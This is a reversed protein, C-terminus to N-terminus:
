CYWRLWFNRYLRDRVHETTRNWFRCSLWQLIIIFWVSPCSDISLSLFLMAFESFLAWYFLEEPKEILFRWTSSQPVSSIAFNNWMLMNKVLFFYQLYIFILKVQLLWNLWWTSLCWCMGDAYPIRGETIPIVLVQLFVLLHM